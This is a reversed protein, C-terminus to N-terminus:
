SKRTWNVDRGNIQTLTQGKQFTRTRVTDDPRPSTTGDAYSDFVYFGTEPAATGSRYKTTQTSMTSVEWDPKRVHRASRALSTEAMMWSRNGGPGRRAFLLYLTIRKYDSVIERLPATEM